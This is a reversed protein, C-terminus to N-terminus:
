AFPNMFFFNTIFQDALIFAGLVAVYVAFPWLKKGTVAKLMLRIAFYGSIAAAVMGVVVYLWNINSFGLELMDPIELVVSGLIAPISLIFSFDAAAKKDMGCFLGGAITSGSRSVGPLIAVSQMLGICLANKANMSEATKQKSKTRESAYLIAATLLFGFGLFRGSYADEFFDKFLLAIVVTPVLAILLMGVKKQIPRRLLEWIEKRYVVFVAVLTGVHLMITFFMAGEEIGFINHLLVLHGSSSVPLFECLGQVIGLLLAIWITM